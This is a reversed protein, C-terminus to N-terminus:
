CSLNCKNTWIIDFFNLKHEKLSGDPNTMLLSDSISNTSASNCVYRPNDVINGKAERQWCADCEAPKQKNLFQLRAANAKPSHIISEISQDNVNGLVQSTACCFKIDGGAGSWVSTWPASCFSDGYQKFVEKVRSNKWLTNM